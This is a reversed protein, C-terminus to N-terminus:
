KACQPEIRVELLESSTKYELEAGKTMNQVNYISYIASHVNCNVCFVCVGVYLM